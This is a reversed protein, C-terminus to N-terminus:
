NYWLEAAFGNRDNIFKSSNDSDFRLAILLIINKNLFFLVSEWSWKRNSNVVNQRETMTVRVTTEIRDHKELEAYTNLQNITRYELAPLLYLVSPHPIFSTYCCNEWFFIPLCASSGAHSVSGRSIRGISQLLSHIQYIVALRPTMFRLFMLRARKWYAQYWPEQQTTLHWPIWDM